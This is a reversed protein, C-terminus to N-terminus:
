SFHALSKEDFWGVHFIFIFFCSFSLSSSYSPLFCFFSFWDVCLMSIVCSISHASLWVQALTVHAVNCHTLTNQECVADTAASQWWRYVIVAVVFYQFFFVFAVKPISSFPNTWTARRWIWPPSPAHKETSRPLRIRTENTCKKGIQETNNVFEESIQRVRWAISLLHPRGTSIQGDCHVDRWDLWNQAAFWSINFRTSLSRSNRWIAKQSMEEAFQPGRFARKTGWNQQASCRSTTGEQKRDGNIFINAPKVKELSTWLHLLCNRSELLSPMRLMANTNNRMSRFVRCQGTNNQKLGAQLARRHPHGEIKEVLERVRFNEAQKVVAHPLGSVRFDIDIDECQTFLGPQQESVFRVRNVHGADLNEDADKDQNSRKVSVPVCISFLDGQEKMPAKATVNSVKEIEQVSSGSRQESLVLIGTRVIPNQDKTPNTTLREWSWCSRFEKKQALKSTLVWYVTNQHKKWGKKSTGFLVRHMRILKRQIKLNMPEVSSFFVTQRKSLNEGGPILGSNMISHLNTGCGIRHIYEFFDNPILVNDQLSPDVLNRGSHGQLARLYVIIGSDDTCYWFRKKNGKWWVLTSITWSRKSSDDERPLHGHRFFLVWNNQCQTISQHIIKQSLMLGIEKVSPYLEQPRAPLLVDKHNQKPRQSAFDGANLKLAFNDFQMESTEQENDDDEKNSLDTVWKDLGHSFRVWSHSHDKNVPEIRIEVGYKGTLCCTTVELVPEIKTNRSDLREPRIIKWRRAFHLWSLGSIRYITLVRWHRKDHLVTRSWGQWSDQM